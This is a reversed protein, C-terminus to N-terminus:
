LRSILSSALLQVSLLPQVAVQLAQPFQARLDGRRFRLLLAYSFSLCFEVGTDDCQFGAQVHPRALEKANAVSGCPADLVASPAPVSHRKNHTSRLKRPPHRRPTSSHLAWPVCRAPRPASGFASYCLLTHFEEVCTGEYAPPLEVLAAASIVSMSIESSM